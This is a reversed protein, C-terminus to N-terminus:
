SGPGYDEREGPRNDLEITTDPVECGVSSLLTTGRPCYALFNLFDKQNTKDHLSDSMITIGTRPWSQKLDIIWKNTDEMEVDLIAGSLDYAIPPKVGPEVSQIEAIMSPFYTNDAAHFPIANSFWWKGIGRAKRKRTGKILIKLTMQQTKHRLTFPDVEDRMPKVSKSHAGRMSSLGHTIEEIDHSSTTGSSGEARSTAGPAGRSPGGYMSLDPGGYMSPDPGGYMSPDPGGYM